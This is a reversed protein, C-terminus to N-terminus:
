AAQLAANLTCVRLWSARNYGRPKANLKDNVWRSVNGAGALNEITDWYDPELAITARQFSDFIITKGSLM